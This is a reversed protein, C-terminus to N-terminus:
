ISRVLRVNSNDKRACFAYIASKYVLYDVCYYGNDDRTYVRYEEFKYVFNDNYTVLMGLIGQDEEPIQIKIGQVLPPPPPGYDIDIDIRNAIGFLSKTQDFVMYFNYCLKYM